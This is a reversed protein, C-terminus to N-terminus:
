GASLRQRQHLIRLAQPQRARERGTRRPTAPVVFGAGSLGVIGIKEGRKIEFSLNELVSKNQYSFSLDKFYIKQWNKPFSVKGNEDDINIKTNLIYKLREVGKKAIAFDESIDVLESISSLIQTFYGVFLVLFGVEYSGNYIGFSIFIISGARFLHGYINRFTNGSQFWFVRRKISLFLDNANKSLRNMIGLLMSM